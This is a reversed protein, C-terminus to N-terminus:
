KVVVGLVLLMLALVATCAPRPTVSACPRGVRGDHHAICINCGGDDSFMLLFLLFLLFLLLLLLLLYGRGLQLTLGLLGM